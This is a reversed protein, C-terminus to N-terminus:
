LVQGKLTDTESLYDLYKEFYGAEAEDGSIYYKIRKGESDNSVEIKTILNNVTGENGDLIRIHEPILKRIQERFFIFHTCGLVISNYKSWDPQSLKKELYANVESGNIKFNEAFMVLEQLSLYDVKNDAKLNRVLDNLKEERLTLDTACVLVKYEESNEVAPKVAPEMGIIPFDYKKRLDKVAVSTATNCALVLAKLGKAALFDVANFVLEKIEERSKTGYPAHRSDGFYIFNEGPMKKMGEYLVTLGGVGSDFFAIHM